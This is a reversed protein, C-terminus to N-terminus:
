YTAEYKRRAFRGGPITWETCVNTVGTIDKRELRRKALELSPPETPLPFAFIPEGCGGITQSPIAGLAAAAGTSILVAIASYRLILAMAVNDCFRAVLLLCV